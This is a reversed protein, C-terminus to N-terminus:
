SVLEALTRLATRDGSVLLTTVGAAQHAALQDKLREAPGRLAIEDILADPV